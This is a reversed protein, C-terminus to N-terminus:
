DEAWLSSFVLYYKVSIYHRHILVNCIYIVTGAASWDTSLKYETLAEVACVYESQMDLYPIM